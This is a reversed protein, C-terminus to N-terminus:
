AEEPLKILQDIEYYAKYSQVNEWQVYIPSLVGNFSMGDKLTTAFGIVTGVNDDATKSRLAVKAGLIFGKGKAVVVESQLDYYLLHTSENYYEDDYITTPSYYTPTNEKHFVIKGQLM